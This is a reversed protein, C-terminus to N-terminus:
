TSSFSRLLRSEISSLSTQNLSMKSEKRRLLEGGLGWLTEKKQRQVLKEPKQTEETDMLKRAFKRQEEYYRKKAQTDADELDDFEEMRALQRVKEAQTLKVSLKTPAPVDTHRSVELDDKAENIDVDDAELDQRVVTSRNAMTPPRVIKRAFARALKM